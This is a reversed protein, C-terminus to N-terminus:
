NVTVNQAVYRSGDFRTIVIVDAAQRLNGSTAVLTPDLYIEYTKGDTASTLVLLGSSLDLGTVHGAFTFKAGPTALISVEEAVSRGGQQSGFKVSVLTGRVLEGASASRGQDILRTQSTVRLKLPRPSLMDRLSLEGTDSRYGLVIGQSEGAAAAKLRINRAFITTGDLMTDISVRDGPRLDSVSAEKGDSFFHTRPDFYIKMKGGGFVQVTFEDRVRDLKQMTGGIVSTKHAPLARPSPLLSAPDLSSDPADAAADGSTEGPAAPEVAAPTVPSMPAPEVSTAVGLSSAVGPSPEAASSPSVVPSPAVSEPPPSQGKAMGSFVAVGLVMSSVMKEFFRDMTDGGQYTKRRQWAAFSRRSNKVRFNSAL